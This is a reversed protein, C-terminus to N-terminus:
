TQPGDGIRKKQWYVGTWDITVLEEDIGNQSRFDDVAARCSTMAGYDDVIVYGGASVKAYLSQLVEMTSQYMDGDIRLVALRDVPADSLTDQFWGQLFRVHEDLMGYRQFNAKVEELSVALQPRSSLRDKADAPFREPEPPPLGRFSDAVWVQRDAAGYARLAARMFIAAGGRWVGAELLDGPVNHDLVDKICAGLNDLRLLGIMTEAELPLDRGEVRAMKPTRRVIAYDGIELLKRIPGFFFSGFSGRRPQISQYTQDFLSRTLSQKMLDLYLSAVRENQDIV